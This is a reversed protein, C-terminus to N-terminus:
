NELITVFVLITTHLREKQLLFKKNHKTQLYHSSKRHYNKKRLKVFVYFYLGVVFCFGFLLFYFFVFGM